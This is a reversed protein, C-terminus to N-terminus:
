PVAWMVECNVTACVRVTQVWLYGWTVPARHWYTGSVFFVELLESLLSVTQPADTRGLTCSSVLSLISTIFCYSQNLSRERLIRWSPFQEFSLVLSRTGRRVPRYHRVWGRTFIPMARLVSFLKMNAHSVLPREVARRRACASACSSVAPFSSDFSGAVLVPRSSVVLSLSRLGIYLGAANLQYFKCSLANNQWIELALLRGVVICTGPWVLPLYRLSLM